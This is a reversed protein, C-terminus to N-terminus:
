ATTLGMAGKGKKPCITWDVQKGVQRGAPFLLLVIGERQKSGKTGKGQERSKGVETGASELLLVIGERDGSDAVGDNM